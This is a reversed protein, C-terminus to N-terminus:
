PLKYVRGRKEGVKIIYRLKVLKELIRLATRQSVGLLKAIEPTKVEGKKGIYELVKREREKIVKEKLDFIVYFFGGREEFKPLSLGRKSCERIMKITGSGWAEIYGGLFFVNAILPNRPRSSHERYLDEVKLGEPLIGPNKVIVKDPEIRLYSFSIIRYDRHVVANIIAERIAPEPVFYEVKRELGEIKIRKPMNKLAFNYVSEVIEFLDGGFNEFEVIEGFEDVKVCKFYNQPFIVSPNRGFLLVAAKTIKGNKVLGLSELTKKIGKWERGIKEVFKRLKKEDIEDLDVDIPESDFTVKSSYRKIILLEVEQPDMRLNSKGVRKYAIGNYFYPKLEGEPVDIELIEKGEVLIKRIKVPLGPRIEKTIVESIKEITRRGIEVGIIRGNDSVGIYVKGGRKNAFACITKLIESIKSLSEKFEVTESEEKPMM